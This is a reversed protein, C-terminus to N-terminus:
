DNSSTSLVLVANGRQEITTKERSAARSVETFSTGMALQTAAPFAFSGDDRVSCSVSRLNGDTNFGDIEFTLFADPDNGAQWTITSSPMIPTTPGTMILREVVPLTVVGFAPFVGGPISATLASPMPGAVTEPDSLYAMLGFFNERKLELFTAGGALVPIVDGADVTVIDIGSGFDIDMDDDSDPAGFDITEVDCVDLAPAFNNQILSSDVAQSIQFFGASAEVENDSVFEDVSISGFLTISGGSSAGAGGGDAASDSSGDGGGGCAAVSLALVMSVGYRLTM